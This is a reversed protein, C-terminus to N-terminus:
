VPRRFRGELPLWLGTKWDYYETGHWGLKYDFKSPVDHIYGLYYYKKNLLKSLEIELIMTFIGPSFRQFDPNYICYTSSVAELGLHFFSYAFVPSNKDLGVEFQFGQVPLRHAEPGIFDSLHKPRRDAFRETHLDFLVDMNERWRIAQFVRHLHANKRMLKRQSKSPAYRDLAIRLPISGCMLGEHVSFNHRVMRDGLLRWAEAMLDDFVVPHLPQLVASENILNDIEKM